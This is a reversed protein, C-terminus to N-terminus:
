PAASCLGGLTALLNNRMRGSPLGNALALAFGACVFVGLNIKTLTLAAALAAAFALRLPTPSSALVLIGVLLLVCIEQPHGPEAALFALSRLVALWAILAMARSGTVRLTFTFALMCTLVWPLIGALRTATHTSAGGLFTHVIWSYLFYFPGYISTFDTYVAHGELLWRSM